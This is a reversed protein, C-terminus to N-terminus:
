RAAEAIPEAQRPRYRVIDGYLYKEMCLGAIPAAVAGGFGANEVMVCIAIRPNDLPAFGVFWAHDEGHPNEATGTKGAVRINPVQAARGTGGPEGVCRYMGERLIEWVADSVKMTRSPFSLTELRNPAKHLIASAVHPQYYTGKNALVMAYGAMQIPSVGVEGQGIGLSVLYGQTWKGKGYVRDYYEASPILGPNEEYIDLGTPSGFGFARAYNFWTELGTKMMVTYFFVNCSKQIAEHVNTSGHVHLDKFIKNGFRFAGTCQVRYDTTIIGEQLAAAALVMKFTSGPPYRTLTARNFLPKGPDANLSAWVDPPTVGSFLMPDFDPKSVMALIGGDGPDIAVIAGHRNTMLSEAFAQLNADLTLLIDNGERPPIDNQGNDYAGLIQGRANVTIFELGKEGRLYREYALEVGSAGIIDGQRYPEGLEALIKESIEKTYGFLHPAAAKTPYFRKSEIEYDVGPFRHHNEEIFSLTQFDVDRKIKTPAFRNYERGKKVRDLIHSRSVRLIQALDDATERGFESPTITITYAPRNDVVLTGNRDYIYGRVSEKTIPRISNEESKKGYVDQYVVQLQVLRGVFVLFVTGIAAYFVRRKSQELFDSM